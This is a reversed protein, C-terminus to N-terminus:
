LPKGRLSPRDVVRTIDSDPACSQSRIRYALTKSNIGSKKCIDITNLRDGRYIYLYESRKRRVTKKDSNRGTRKLWEQTQNYIRQQLTKLSQPIILGASLLCNHIVYLDGLEPANKEEYLWSEITKPSREIMLAIENITLDPNNKKIDILAKKRAIPDRSKKIMTIAM